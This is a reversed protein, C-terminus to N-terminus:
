KLVSHPSRAANPDVRSLSSPLPVDPKVGGEWPDAYSSAGPIGEVRGFGMTPETPELVIQADAAAEIYDELPPMCEVPPAEAQPEEVEPPSDCTPNPEPDTAPEDEVVRELMTPNDAKPSFTTTTTKWRMSEPYESHSRFLSHSVARKRPTPEPAVDPTEQQEGDDEPAEEPPMPESPEPAPEPDVVPAAVKKKSKDQARFALLANGSVILMVALPDFVFIILGIILMIAHEPTIDLGKSIMSVPGLHAEMQVIERRLEPIEVDLKTIRENLSALEAENAKVERLRATVYNSDVAAITDNIQKLRSELKAREAESTELTIAAQQTGMQAKQFASSLYGAAGYSTILMTILAAPVLYMKMAFHLRDWFKYLLSVVVIKAIDLVIALVLIVPDGQFTEAIGMVSVYSGITELLLAALFILIIFPM